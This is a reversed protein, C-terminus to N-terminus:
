AARRQSKRPSQVGVCCEATLFSIIGEMAAFDARNIIERGRREQIVLGTSALANLHHALTSAPIQLHAIIDGVNLGTRGARVLLRFIGLRSTHGLAALARAVEAAPMQPMQPPMPAASNKSSNRTM